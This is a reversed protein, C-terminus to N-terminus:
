DTLLARTTPRRGKGVKASPVGVKAARFCPLRAGGGSGGGCRRGTAARAQRRHEDQPVRAALEDRLRREPACVLFPPRRPAKQRFLEVGCLESLPRRRRRRGRRRRGRGGARAALAGRAPLWPHGRGRVDAAQNRRQPHRLRRAGGSRHRRKAAGDVKWVFAWRVDRRRAPVSGRRRCAPRRRRGPGRRARDLTGLPGGQTQFSVPGRAAM